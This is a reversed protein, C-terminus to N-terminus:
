PAAAWFARVRIMDEVMKLEILRYSRIYSLLDRKFDTESDGTSEGLAPNELRPFLPSLWIGSIM